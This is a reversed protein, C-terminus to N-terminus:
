CRLWRGISRRRRQLHISGRTGPVTAREESQLNYSPEATGGATGAAAVAFSASLLHDCGSEGSQLQQDEWETRLVAFEREQM